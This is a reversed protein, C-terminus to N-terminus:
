SNIKIVAADSLTILLRWRIPDKQLDTMQPYKRSQQLKEVEESPRDNAIHASICCPSSVRVRTGYVHRRWKSARRRRHIRNTYCCRMAQELIQGGKKPPSFCQEGLLHSWWIKVYAPNTRHDEVFDFGFDAIEIRLYSEARRRYLSPQIAMSPLFQM